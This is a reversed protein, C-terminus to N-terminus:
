DWIGLLCTNVFSPHNEYITKSKNQSKKKAKKSPIQSKKQFPM